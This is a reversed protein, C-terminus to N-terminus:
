LPIAIKKGFLFEKQLHFNLGWRRLCPLATHCASLADFGANMTAQAPFKSASRWGSPFVYPWTSFAHELGTVGVLHHLQRAATKRSL